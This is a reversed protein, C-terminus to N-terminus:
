FVPAFATIQVAGVSLLGNDLRIDVKTGKKGDIEGSRGVLTLAPGFVLSLDGFGPIALGSLLSSSDAVTASYHGEALGRENFGLKGDVGLLGAGRAVRMRSLEVTGGAKAWAAVLGAKDEGAQLPVGFLSAVVDLAAGQDPRTGAAGIGSAQVVIDFDQNPKSDNLKPRVHVELHEATLEPRANDFRSLTPREIVISLREFGPERLSLSAQAGAFGLVAVLADGKQITMSGDLDAIIRKPNYVLTAVTIKSLHAEVPGEPTRMQLIAGNCRVEVLFPFGTISRNMCQHQRGIAAEAALWADMQREVESRIAMWAGAWICIAAVLVLLPAVIWRFRRKRPKDQM